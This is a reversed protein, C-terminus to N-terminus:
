KIKLRHLAAQRNQEVIRKQEDTLGGGGSGSVGGGSGSVGGGGVFVGRGSGGGSVGAGSGGAQIVGGSSKFFFSNL